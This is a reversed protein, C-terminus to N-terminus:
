LPAHTYESYVGPALSRSPAHYLAVRAAVPEDLEPSDPRARALPKRRPEQLYADANLSQYLLEPRVNAGHFLREEGDVRLGRQLESVNPADHEERGLAGPDFDRLVRRPEYLLRDDAVARGLLLLNLLHNANQQLKAFRGRGEVRGVREADCDRVHVARARRPKLLRLRRGRARLEFGQEGRVRAAAGRASRGRDYRVRRARGVNL